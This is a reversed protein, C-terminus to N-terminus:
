RKKYDNEKNKIIDQISQTKNSRAGPIVGPYKGPVQGAAFKKRNSETFWVHCVKQKWNKIQQGRSDHWDAEKYGQFVKRALDAPFGNDKFYQIFEILTPAIFEKIRDRIKDKDKDKDKYGSRPKIGPKLRAKAKNLGGKRGAERLIEHKELLQKYQEDLFKISVQGNRFIKVYNQDYLQKLLSIHNKFRKELRAKALNCDQNWYYCCVNVFLGQLDFEEASIDGQIWEGTYFRFYPLEKM